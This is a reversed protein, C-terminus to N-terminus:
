KGAIDATAEGSSAARRAWAAINYFCVCRDSTTEDM